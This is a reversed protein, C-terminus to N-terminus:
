DTFKSYFYVDSPIHNIVEHKVRKCEFTMGSFEIIKIMGINRCSTGATIKRVYPQKELWSMLLTWAEKGFGKGKYSPHGILMGIDVTKHAPFFNATITGIQESSSFDHISFFFSNSEAFSNLYTQCTTTSHSNFRQNSFQMLNKDNLWSIYQPTIHKHNFKELFIKKSQLNLHPYQPIHM